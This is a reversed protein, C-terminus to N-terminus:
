ANAPEWEAEPQYMRLIDTDIQQALRKMAPLIYRESFDDITLMLDAHSMPIDLDLERRVIRIEKPFSWVRGLPIADRIAIGGVVAGLGRLFNRRNV